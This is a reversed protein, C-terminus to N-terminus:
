GAAREAISDTWKECERTHRSELGVERGSIFMQKVNM